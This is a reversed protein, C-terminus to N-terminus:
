EVAPPAQSVDPTATTIETSSGASVDTPNIIDEGTKAFLDDFSLTIKGSADPMSVNALNSEDSPVIPTESPLTTDPESSMNMALEEQETLLFSSSEKAIMQKIYPSIKELITNRADQEAIERIKAADALAEKYLDSM